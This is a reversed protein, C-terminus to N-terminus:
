SWAITISEINGTWTKDAVIRVVIYENAGVSQTGFTANNTANLSSDLSGVLCGANDGNEGTEFAKALDMWGTEFGSSTRPIKAHVRFNNNSAM